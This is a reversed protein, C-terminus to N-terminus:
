EDEKKNMKIKITNKFNMKAYKSLFKEGKEKYIKKGIADVKCGAGKPLSYGSEESLAKMNKLFYYRAIISSCAVAAFQNEAKEIM